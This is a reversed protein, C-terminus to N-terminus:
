RKIRREKMKVSTVRVLNYDDFILGILILYLIFDKKAVIMMVRRAVDLAKTWGIAKM